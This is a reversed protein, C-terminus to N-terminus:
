EVVLRGTYRSSAISTSYFYVGPNLNLEKITTNSTLPFSLLEQGLINSITM